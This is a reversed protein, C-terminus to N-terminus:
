VTSCVASFSGCIKVYLTFVGAPAVPACAKLTVGVTLPNIAADKATSSMPTKAEAEGDTDGLTDGDTDGLWLGDAETEGLTLGDTEGETLGLTEGLMDGEIAGLRDTAFKVEPCSAVSSVLESVADIEGEAFM